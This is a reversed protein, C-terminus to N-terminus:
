STGGGSFLRKVDDFTPLSSIERQFAALDLPSPCSAVIVRKLQCGTAPFKRAIEYAMLGGLCQGYLVFPTSNIFSYNDRMFIEALEDLNEAYPTDSYNTRNPIRVAYLQLTSPADLWYRM